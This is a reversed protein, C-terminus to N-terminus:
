AYLDLGGHPSRPTVPTHPLPHRADRQDGRDDATRRGPPSEHGAGSGGSTSHRGEASPGSSAGDSSMALTSGPAAAALDRRLDTLIARLAERGADSPAHLELRIVGSAIHARVTVPGLSEPAVTVTVSHEGNAGQALSLVPASLQALLAQRPVPAAPAPAPPAIVGRVDAPAGAPPTPAAPDPLRHDSTIRIGQDPATPVGHVADGAPTTAAAAAAIVTTTPAALGGARSAALAAMRGGASPGVADAMVAPALEATGGAQPSAPQAVLGGSAIPPDRRTVTDTASVVATAVVASATVPASEPAGVQITGDAQIMGDSEAPADPQVPPTPVTSAAGDEAQVTSDAAVPSSLGTPVRLAADAQEPSATTVTSPPGPQSAAPDVPGAPGVLLTGGPAGADAAAGSAPGRGTASGTAPAASAPDEDGPAGEGHGRADDRPARGHRPAARLDHPPADAAHQRIVDAFTTAGSGPEPPSVPRQAPAAALDPFGLPRM